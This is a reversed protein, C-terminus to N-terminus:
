AITLIRECGGIPGSLNAIEFFVNRSPEQRNRIQVGGKQAIGYRCVKDAQRWRPRTRHSSKARRWRRAARRVKDRRHNRFLSGTHVKRYSQASSAHTNERGPVRVFTRRERERAMSVQPLAGSYDTSVEAPGM